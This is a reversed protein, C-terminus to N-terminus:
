VQQRSSAAQRKGWNESASGGKESASGRSDAPTPPSIFDHPGTLLVKQFKEPNLAYHHNLSSLVSDSRPELQPAPWTISSVHLAVYCSM